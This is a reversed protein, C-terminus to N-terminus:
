ATPEAKKEDYIADATTDFDYSLIFSLNSLNINPTINISKGKESKLDMRFTGQSINLYLENIVVNFNGIDPKAPAAAGPPAPVDITTINGAPLSPTQKKAWELLGTVNISPKADTEPNNITQIIWYGKPNKNGAQVTIEAAQDGNNNTIKLTGVVEIIFKKPVSLKSITLVTRGANASYKGGTFSYTKGDFEVAITVTVDAATYLTNKADVLAPTVPIEIQVGLGSPDPQITIGTQTVNAIALTKDAENTIGAGSFTVTTIKLNTGKLVTVKKQQTAVPTEPM